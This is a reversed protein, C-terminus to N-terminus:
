APVKGQLESKVFKSFRELSGLGPVMKASIPIFMFTQRSTLYSGTVLKVRNTGEGAPEWKLQLQVQEVFGGPGVISYTQYGPGSVKVKMSSQMSRKAVAMARSAVELIRAEDADTTVSFQALEVRESQSPM